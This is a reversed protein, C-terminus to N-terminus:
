TPPRKITVDVSQSVQREDWKLTLTKAKDATTKRDTSPDWTTKGDASVKILRMTMSQGKAVTATGTLEGGM